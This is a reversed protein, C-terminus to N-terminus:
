GACDNIRSSHTKKLTQRVSEHSISEIHGQEVMRNAISQYTWNKTGDENNGQCTLAIIQAEVDGDIKRWQAVGKQKGKLAIEYGEVVFRKRLREVTRATVGYARSIERDTMKRGQKGDDAGLLINARKIKPANKGRRVIENLEKRETETLTVVYKKGM